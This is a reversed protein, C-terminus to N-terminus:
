YDQTMAVEGLLYLQGSTKLDENPFSQEFFYILIGSTISNYNNSPIM